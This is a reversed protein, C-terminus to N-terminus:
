LLIMPIGSCPSVQPLVLFDGNDPPRTRAHTLTTNNPVWHHQTGMDDGKNTHTHEPQTSRFTPKPQLRTKEWRIIIINYYCFRAKTGRASSQLGRKPTPAGSSLCIVPYHSPSWAFFAFHKISGKARRGEAKEATEHSSAYTIHSPIQYRSM